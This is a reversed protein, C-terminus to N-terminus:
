ETGLNYVCNVEEIFKPPNIKDEPHANIAM